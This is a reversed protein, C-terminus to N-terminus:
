FTLLIWIREVTVYLGRTSIVTLQIETSYQFM